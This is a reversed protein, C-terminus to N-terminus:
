DLQMHLYSDTRMSLKKKLKIKCASEKTIRFTLKTSYYNYHLVLENNTWTYCTDLIILRCDNLFNYTLTTTKLKIQFIKLEYLVKRQFNVWNKLVRYKSFNRYKKERNM